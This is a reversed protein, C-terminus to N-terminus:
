HVRSEAGFPHRGFKEGLALCDSLTGVGDSPTPHSLSSAAVCVALNLCETPPLNEHFGHLLGAAFADGAGTSGQVYGAPLDLSPQVVWEGASSVHVAGARTHLTVSKGVGCNLIASASEILKEADDERLKTGVLKAAEIENLVLHDIYPLSSEVIRRYESHEASVLDVFTIMGKARASEILRSAITRGETDFQDLQDLLMLYGLYFIRASSAALDCDEPRFCANAGRRHFFTRKGSGAETMADTSSTGCGLVTRLQTVDIGHRVCDKRVWRGDDDEGVLGCASLPYYVEMAALNKLVNYPGGGNSQTSDFVNALQELGPYHDIMKVHDVIFNGAALVGQPPTNM